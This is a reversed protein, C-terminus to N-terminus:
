RGLSVTWVTSILTSSSTLKAGTYSYDRSRPPHSIVGSCDELRRPEISRRLKTRNFSIDRHRKGPQFLSPTTREAPRAPRPNSQRPLTCCYALLVTLTLLALGPTTCLVSCLGGCQRSDSQNREQHKTLIRGHWEDRPAFSIRELGAADNTPGTLCATSPALLPAALAPRARNPLLWALCHM